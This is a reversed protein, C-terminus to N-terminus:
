GSVAGADELARIADADYGLEALIERTHQGPEPPMAPTRQEIGEVHVPGRVTQFPADAMPVFVGNIRMQEDNAVEETPPVPGWLLDHAGFRRAWEEMPHRAFEIDLIRVCDRHNERRAAPTAFRPDEILEGRDIARCLKTWDRAPDLLCFLFRRGDGSQYHNILPNPPAERTWKAPWEAGCLASQVLSANSWVGNAMLTTSVKGGEGTRDRRYLALLIGALLSIASPHDGMGCPSVAPDAGANHIYSMLGSRAFYATMDYGPKESEPGTEGYGTISAYILRSNLPRVDEYSIRFRRLMQPQYNTLLVDADRVLRLFVDRGAPSALNLALSRKNRNDVLFPYNHESAPMGPSSSLFRFPDGLPPREVKIVDAGFDSLLAAASPAAIYTAADIVKLGSLIHPM